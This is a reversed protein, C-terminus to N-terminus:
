LCGRNVYIQSVLAAIFTALVLSVTVHTLHPTSYVGFIKLTGIIEGCAFLILTLILFRWAKLEKKRFAAQFLSLALIGSVISLFVVAITATGYFWQYMTLAIENV